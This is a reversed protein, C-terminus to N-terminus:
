VRMSCGKISVVLREIPTESEALVRPTMYNSLMQKVVEKIEEHANGYYECLDPNVLADIMMGTAHQIIDRALGLVDGSSFVTKEHNCAISLEHKTVLHRLQGYAHSVLKSYDRVGDLEHSNKQWIVDYYPSQISEALTINQLLLAEVAELNTIGKEAALKQAREIVRLVQESDRIPKGIPLKAAAVARM